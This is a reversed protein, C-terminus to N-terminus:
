TSNGGLSLTEDKFYYEEYGVFPKVKLIDLGLEWGVRLGATAFRYTDMDSTTYELGIHTGLLNLTGNLGLVEPSKSVGDALGSDYTASFDNPGTELSLGFLIEASANLTWAFLLGLTLIIVLALKM